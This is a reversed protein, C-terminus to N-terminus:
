ILVMMRKVNNLQHSLEDRALKIKADALQNTSSVSGKVSDLGGRYEGKM